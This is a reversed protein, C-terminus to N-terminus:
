MSAPKLRLWRGVSKGFPVGDVATILLGPFLTRVVVLIVVAFLAARFSVDWLLPLSRGSMVLRVVLMAVGSSVVPPLLVDRYWGRALVRSAKMLAVGGGILQGAALTWAYQALSGGLAILFIPPLTLLATVVDLRFCIKLDSRALRIGYGSTFIVVGLAILAGPLVLPDAAIWKQGYLLRLLSKGEFGAFVVGPVVVMFTVQLFLTAVRAFKKPDHTQRPLLPYVTEAFVNNVQGVTSTFLAEARRLLGLAGFGLQVPLVLAELAPRMAQLMASWSQQLGFLIAPRYARWDPRRLWGDVPRWRRVVLLDVAAPVAPVVNAGAVIALAGFGSVGLALMVAIGSLKAIGELLRLRRFNMERRLMVMRLASPAEVLLGVSALHLLGAISGSSSVGWLLIALLNTIVFLVCQIPFGAHWHASWDPEEGEKLQLGQSFFVGCSVVNALALFGVVAGARGYESPPILRVLVLMSGFQLLAAFARYVTTWFVGRVVLRKGEIGDM